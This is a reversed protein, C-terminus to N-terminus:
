IELRADSVIMRTGILISQVAFSECTISEMAMICM